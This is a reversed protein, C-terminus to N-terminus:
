CVMDTQMGEVLLQILPAIGLSYFGMAAPDGQTAGEESLLSDHNIGDSVTLRAAKQYHNHLFTKIPPCIQQINHLAVKRNFRNFANDADVQLLCETEENEWIRSASQISAEIGSKIGTCTQVCGCATQVDTKLVAMVSKGVIRRLVEGIGIPRVGPNGSIDSGKDLPILHCATFERLSDFHIEETCLRCALCAIAEALNKSHNGYAKSCILHKWIDADM